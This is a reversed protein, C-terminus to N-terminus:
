KNSKKQTFSVQTVTGDCTSKVPTKNGCALDWGGHVDSKGFVIREEM